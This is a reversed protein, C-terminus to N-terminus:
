TVQPSFCASGLMSEGSQARAFARATSGGHGNASPAERGLDCIPHKSGGACTYPPALGCPTHLRPSDRSLRGSPHPLRLWGLRQPVRRNSQPYTSTSSPTRSLSGAPSPLPHHQAVHRVSCSPIPLITLQASSKKPAGLVAHMRDRWVRGDGSSEERVCM